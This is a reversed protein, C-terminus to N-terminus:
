KLGQKVWSSYLCIQDATLKTNGSPPMTAAQVRKLGSTANAAAKELTDYDVGSPASQRSSGTLNSQHCKTCVSDFVAKMNGVYTVNASVNDCSTDTGSDAKDGCGGLFITTLFMFFNKNIKPM